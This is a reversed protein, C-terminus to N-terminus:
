YSGGQGIVGVLNDLLDQLSRSNNNIRNLDLNTKNGERAITLDVNGQFQALWEKLARDAGSQYDGSIGQAAGLANDLGQLRNKEFESELGVLGQGYAGLKQGELDQLTGQLNGGVFGRSLANNTANQAAGAGASDLRERLRNASRNFSQISGETNRQYLDRFMDLAPNSSPGPAVGPGNLTLGGGTSPINQMPPQMGGGPMGGPTGFIQPPLGSLSTRPGIGTPQLSGGAKNIAEWQREFGRTGPTLPGRPSGVPLNRIGQLNGGYAM